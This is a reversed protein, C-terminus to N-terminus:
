MKINAKQLWNYDYTMSEFANNTYEEQEIFFHKMGSEKAYKFIGAVDVNGKGFETSHKQVPDMDKLHWLPFRGPYKKFYDLPNKGANVIWGLDMEMIVYQPDVNNLLVDYLIQGDAEDFESNHNHYGFILGSKKCQQGAKSLLAGSKKYNDVTQGPSPLVASILYQQGTEAAEDISKQFDNDVHIHGSRLTMGNDSCIAKIEKPTLGYYNGKDSRASEIEKYGIQALKILTGKADALMEKRVSYLQIGADKKVSLPAAKLINGALFSGATFFSTQKIFARRTKM